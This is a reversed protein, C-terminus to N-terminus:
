IRSMVTFFAVGVTHARCLQHHVSERYCATEQLDTELTNWQPIDPTVMSPNGFCGIQFLENVGPLPSNKQTGGVLIEYTPMTNFITGFFAAKRLPNRLHLLIDAMHEVLYRAYQLVIHIDVTEDPKTATSDLGAIQQEISVVEEELHKIVTASTVIKMRDIVAKIQAELEQRREELKKDDAAAQAQKENWKAEIASLLTDLHDPSIQLRRVVDDITQEFAAKPVRFYHGRKSCHYAPYQKGLKGRSASGLLANGCQPCAM